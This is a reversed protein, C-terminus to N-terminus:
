TLFKVEAERFENNLVQLKYRLMAASFEGEDVDQALAAPFQAFILCILVWRVWRQSGCPPMQHAFRCPREPRTPCPPRKHNGYRPMATLSAMPELLRHEIIHWLVGM